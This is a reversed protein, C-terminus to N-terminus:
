FWTIALLFVGLGLDQWNRSIRYLNGPPTSSRQQTSAQPTPHNIVAEKAPAEAVPTVTKPAMMKPVSIKSIAEKYGHEFQSIQRKKGTDQFTVM